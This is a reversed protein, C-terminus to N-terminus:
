LLNGGGGDCSDGWHDLPPVIVLRLAIHGSIKLKIVKIKVPVIVVREYPSGCPGALLVSGPRSVRQASPKIPDAWHLCHIHGRINSEVWNVKIAVIRYMCVFTYEMKKKKANGFLGVM